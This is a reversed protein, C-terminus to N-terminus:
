KKNGAAISNGLLPAIQLDSTYYMHLASKFCLAMTVDLLRGHIIEDGCDHVCDHVAQSM